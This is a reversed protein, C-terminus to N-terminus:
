HFTGLFRSAFAQASGALFDAVGVERPGKGFSGRQEKAVSRCPLFIQGAQLFCLVVAFGQGDQRMFQSSGDIVHELAVRGKIHCLEKM